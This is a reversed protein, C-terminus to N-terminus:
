PKPYRAPVLGTEIPGNSRNFMEQYSPNKFKVEWLWAGAADKCRFKPDRAVRVLLAVIGFVMLGPVSLFLYGGYNKYFTRLSDPGYETVFEGSLGVVAWGFVFWIVGVAALLGYFERVLNCRRCMPVKIAGIKGDPGSVDM